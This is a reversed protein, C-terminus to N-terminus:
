GWCCAKKERWVDREERQVNRVHHGTAMVSPEWIAGFSLKDSSLGCRQSIDGLSQITVINLDFVM